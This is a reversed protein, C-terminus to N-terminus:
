RAVQPHLDGPLHTLAAEIFTVRLDVWSYRITLKAVSGDLALQHSQEM